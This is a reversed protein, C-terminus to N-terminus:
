NPTIAAQFNTIVKNSIVEQGAATHSSFETKLDIPSAINELFEKMDLRLSFDHLGGADMWTINPFSFQQLNEDKGIHFVVNHNFLPTADPITDVKAEIKLYIYGPNWGWHMDNANSIYLMSAPDVAVPDGHNIASDIGLVAELSPYDDPNGVTMLMTTGRERYDFLGADIIQNAGNHPDGMYFKIDTFQVGYGEQTIYTSDLYLVQSGFVPLVSIRLNEEPTIDCMTSEENKCSFLVLASILVIIGKQLIKM